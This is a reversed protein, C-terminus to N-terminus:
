GQIFSEVRLPGRHFTDKLPIGSCHDCVAIAICAPSHKTPVAAKRLSNVDATAGVPILIRRSATEIDFGDDLGLAVETAGATLNTLVCPLAAVDRWADSDTAAKAFVPRM